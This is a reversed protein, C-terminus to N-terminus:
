AYLVALNNYPEPLEPYDDTLSTFVKIAEQPKNDEPLILGKLFRARADKPNSALVAEIKELAASHKGQKLLRTADQYDDATASTFFLLLTAALAISVAIHRSGM